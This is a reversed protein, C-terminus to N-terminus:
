LLLELKCCRPSVYLVRPVPLNEWAAQHQKMKATLHDIDSMLAAPYWLVLIVMAYIARFRDGLSMAVEQPKEQRECATVMYLPNSAFILVLIQLLFNLDMMLYVIVHFSIAALGFIFRVAAQKQGENASLMALLPLVLEVVLNGWSMLTFPWPTSALIAPAFAMWRDLGAASPELEAQRRVAKAVWEGSINNWLGEYRLKNVGAFFYSPVLVDLLVFKWLWQGALPNTELFPVALTASFVFLTTGQCTHYPQYMIGIIAFYVYVLAGYSAQRQYFLSFAGACWCYRACCSSFLWGGVSM